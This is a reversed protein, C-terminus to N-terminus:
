TRRRARERADLAAVRAREYVGLAEHISPAPYGATEERYAREAGVRAEAPGLGEVRLGSYVTCALVVADLSAMSPLEGAEVVARLAAARAPAMLGRDIAIFGDVFDRGDLEWCARSPYEYIELLIGTREHAWITSLGTDIEAYLGDVAVVRGRLTLWGGEPLFDSGKPVFDRLVVTRGVLTRAREIARGLAVFAEALRRV